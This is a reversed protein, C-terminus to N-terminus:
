LVPLSVSNPMPSISFTVSTVESVSQGTFQVSAIFPTVGAQSGAVAIDSQQALPPEPSNPHKSKNTGSWM